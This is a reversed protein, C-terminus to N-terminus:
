MYHFIFSQIHCAISHGQNANCGTDCHLSTCGLNGNKLNNSSGPQWLIYAYAATSSLQDSWPRVPMATSTLTISKLTETWFAVSGIENAATQEIHTKWTINDANIVWLYKTSTDETLIQRHLTHLYPVAGWRQRCRMMTWKGTDMTVIYTVHEMM